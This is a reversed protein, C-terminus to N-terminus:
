LELQFEKQAHAAKGTRAGVFNVVVTAKGDAVSGKQVLHFRVAENQKLVNAKHQTWILKRDDENFFHEVEIRNEQHNKDKYFMLVNLDKIPEDGIYRIEVDNYPPNKYPYMLLAGGLKPAMKRYLMFNALLFSAFFIAAGITKTLSEDQTLRQATQPFMFLIIGLVDFITFLLQRIELFVARAYSCFDNILGLM